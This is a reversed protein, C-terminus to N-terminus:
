LWVSPLIGLLSSAIIAGASFRDKLSVLIHDLLPIAIVKQYYDKVSSSEPNSRHEQWKAVRPMEPQIGVEEAMRVSQTFIAQFNSSVNLREAKYVPIIESIMEHAKLIDLAKHQLKVTIGSLHSLYQYLSLFCVIFGFSTVAAPIQQANSRSSTDWDAYKDGYRDVHRRYGILELAQIVYVYALYFYQYSSHREAWRTKCLDLLIKRKQSEPVNVM